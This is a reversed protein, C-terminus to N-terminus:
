EEPANRPSKPLTETGASAPVEAAPFVSRPLEPVEPPPTTEDGPTEGIEEPRLAPYQGSNRRLLPELFLAQRIGSLDRRFLASLFRRSM